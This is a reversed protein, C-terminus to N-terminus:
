LKRSWPKFTAEALWTKVQAIHTHSTSGTNKERVCRRHRPTWRDLLGRVCSAGGDTLWHVDEAKLIAACADELLFTMERKHKQLLKRLKIVFLLCICCQGSGILVCPTRVFGQFVGGVDWICHGKSIESGWECSCLFRMSCQSKANILVLLDAHIFKVVNRGLMELVVEFYPRLVVPNPSHARGSKFGRSM